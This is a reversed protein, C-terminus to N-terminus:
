LEVISEVEITDVIDYNSDPTSVVTGTVRAQRGTDVSFILTSEVLSRLAHYKGDTTQLGYACELTIPGSNDKHPLCVITGTYTSSEGTTNTFSRGDPTSCREPYSEMIPYGAAACEQFNTIEPNQGRRILLILVIAVILLFAAVLVMLGQSQKM